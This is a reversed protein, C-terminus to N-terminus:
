LELQPTESSKQTQKEKLYFLLWNLFYALCKEKHTSVQHLCTATDNWSAASMLRLSSTVPKTWGTAQATSHMLEYITCLQFIDTISRVLSGTQSDVQILQFLDLSAVAIQTSLTGWSSSGSLIPLASYCASNELESRQSCVALQWQSVSAEAIAFHGKYELRLESFRM